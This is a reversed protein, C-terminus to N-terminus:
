YVGLVTIPLPNSLALSAKLTAVCPHLLEPSQAEDSAIKRLFCFFGTDAVTTVIALFTTLTIPMNVLLFYFYSHLKLPM